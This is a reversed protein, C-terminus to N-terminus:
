KENYFMMSLVDIDNQKKLIILHCSLDHLYFTLVCIFKHEMEIKNEVLIRKIKLKKLKIREYKGSTTYIFRLKLM